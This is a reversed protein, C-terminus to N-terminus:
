SEQHLAALYEEQSVAYPDEVLDGLVGNLMSSSIRSSTNNNEARKKEVLVGYLTRKGKYIDYGHEYLRKEFGYKFGDKFNKITSSIM